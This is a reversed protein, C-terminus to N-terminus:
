QNNVRKEYLKSLQINSWMWLTFIALLFPLMYSATEISTTPKMFFLIALQVWSALTSGFRAGINDIFSKGKIKEELPLVTFTLEKLPDFFSFKLAKAGLFHLTGLSLILKSFPIDSAPLLHWFTACTFLPIAFFAMVAPTIQAGILWRYSISRTFTSSLLLAIIALVISAVSQFLQYKLSTEFVMRATTTWMIDVSNAVFGYGILMICICLLYPSSLLKISDIISLHTKKDETYSKKMKVSITSRMVILAICLIIQVVAIAQVNASFTYKNHYSIYASLFAISAGLFTGINGWTIITAYYKKADANTSIDNCFGWFIVSMVFTGWLETLIYYISNVWYKYVLAWHSGLQRLYCLIKSFDAVVTYESYPLAIFAFIFFTAMYLYIIFNFISRRSFVNTAKSYLVSVFFLGPLAVVGRLVLIVEAGSGKATLVISDKIILSLVYIVVLILKILGLTRVKRNEATMTVRLAFRM